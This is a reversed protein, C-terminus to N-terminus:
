KGQKKAIEAELVELKKNIQQLKRNNSINNPHDTAPYEKLVKLTRSKLTRQSNRQSMLGMLDEKLTFTKVGPAETPDPVEGKKHLAISKDVWVMKDHIADLEKGREEREADTTLAYMNNAMTARANWLERKEIELKSVLDLQVMENGATPTADDVDIIVVNKKPATKQPGPGPAPTPTPAVKENPFSFADDVIAMQFAKFLHQWNPKNESQAIARLLHQKKQPLRAYLSAGEAYARQANNLWGIVEKKLNNM